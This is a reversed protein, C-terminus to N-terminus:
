VFNVASKIHMDIYGVVQQPQKLKDLYYITFSSTKTRAKSQFLNEVLRSVFSDHKNGPGESQFYSSFNPVLEIGAM